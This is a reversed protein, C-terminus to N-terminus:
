LSFLSQQILTTLVQKNMVEGSAKDYHKSFEERSIKGDKNEDMKAFFATALNDSDAIMGDMVKTANAIVKKKMNAFKNKLLNETDKLEQATMSGKLMATAASLATSYISDITAPLYSKQSNLCEKMLAKTEKEDLTGDGNADYTKFIKEFMLKRQGEFKKLESEALEQLQLPTLQGKSSAQGLVTKTVAASEKTDEQFVENWMQSNKSGDGGM